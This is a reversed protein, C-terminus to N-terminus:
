LTNINRRTLYNNIKNKYKKLKYYSNNRGGRQVQDLGYYRQLKLFYKDWDHFGYSGERRTDKNLLAVYVEETTMDELRHSKRRNWHVEIDYIVISPYYTDFNKMDFKLERDNIGIRNYIIWDIKLRSSSYEGNYIVVINNFNTFTEVETKKLWCYPGSAIVVYKKQFYHSDQTHLYYGLRLALVAGMSHGSIVVKNVKQYYDLCYKYLIDLYPTIVPDWIFEPDLISGCNFVIYLDNTQSPNSDWEIYNDQRNYSFIQAYITHTYRSEAFAQNYRQGLDLPITELLIFTEGLRGTIHSAKENGEFHKIRNSSVCKWKESSHSYYEQCDLDNTNSFLAPNHVEECKPIDNELYYEKNEWWEKKVPRKNCPDDAGNPLNTLYRRSQYREQDSRDSFERCATNEISAWHIIYEAYKAMLSSPSWNSILKLEEPPIDNEIDTEGIFKVDVNGTEEHLDVVEGEMNIGELGVYDGVKFKNDM